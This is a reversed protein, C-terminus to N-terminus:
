KISDPIARNQLHTDRLNSFRRLILTQDDVRKNDANEGKTQVPFCISIDYTNKKIEHSIKKFIELQVNALVCM